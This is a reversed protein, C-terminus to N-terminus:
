WIETVKGDEYVHAARITYPEGMRELVEGPAMGLEINKIKKAPTTCGALLVVGLLMAILRGIKM